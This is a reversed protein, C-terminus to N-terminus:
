LLSTINFTINKNIYLNGLFLGLALAAFLLACYFVINATKHLRVNGGLVFAAFDLIVALALLGIMALSSALAYQELTTPTRSREVVSFFEEDFIRKELFAFRAPCCSRLTAPQFIFYEFSEAFDEKANQGAYDNVRHQNTTHLESFLWRDPFSHRADLAHAYEHIM